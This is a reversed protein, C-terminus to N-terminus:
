WDRYPVGNLGVRTSRSRIDFVDVGPRPDDPASAYSRLDWTTAPAASSPAFPDRPLSRLLYIRLGRPSRADQVGQVLVELSPPYGSADAARQIHGQDSLRKYADLASRIERLARRLDEEQTRQRSLEVLPLGISALTALIAVVVLMEVLSFGREKIM